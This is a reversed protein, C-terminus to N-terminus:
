DYLKIGMKKIIINQLRCMIGDGFFIDKELIDLLEKVTDTAGDKYGDTYINLEFNSEYGIPKTKYKEKAKQILEKNEKEEDPM